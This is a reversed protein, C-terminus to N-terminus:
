YKIGQDNLHRIFLHIRPNGSSTMRQYWEAAMVHNGTERALSIINIFLLGDIGTNSKGNSEAIKLFSDLANGPDGNDAFLFAEDIKKNLDDDLIIGYFSFCNESCDEILDIWRIDKGLPPFKLTFVIKEGTANFKHTDPCVPIDKASTLRSSTGDPYVIFLNKDACFSGGVIRNELSLHIIVAETTTEIKRIELTEHSKISYNPNIFTQSAAFDPYSCTLVVAIYILRKIM